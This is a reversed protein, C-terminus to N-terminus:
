LGEEDDPDFKGSRVDWTEVWYVPGALEGIEHLLENVYDAHATAAEQTDYVAHVQPEEITGEDNAEGFFLAWV